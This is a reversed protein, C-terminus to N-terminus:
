GPQQKRPTLSYVEASAMEAAKHLNGAYASDLLQLMPQVQQALAVDNDSFDHNWPNM